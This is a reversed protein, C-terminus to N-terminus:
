RLRHVVNGADIITQILVAAAEKTKALKDDTATDTSIDKNWNIQKKAM